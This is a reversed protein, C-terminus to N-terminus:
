IGDSGVDDVDKMSEVGIQSANFDVESAFGIFFGARSVFATEELSTWFMVGGEDDRGLGGIDFGSEGTGCGFEVAVEFVGVAAQSVLAAAFM